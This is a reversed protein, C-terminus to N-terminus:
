EIYWIVKGEYYRGDGAGIAGSWKWTRTRLQLTNGSLVDDPIEVTLTSIQNTLATCNLEIWSSGNWYDTVNTCLGPTVPATQKYKITFDATVTGIPIMYNEYIYSTAGPDAPLAYTDWDEDVANSCPYCPDFDGECSYSDETDDELVNCLWTRVLMELDNYDVIEDGNIDGELGPGTKLWDNALIAYDRFDIFGDNNLDAGKCDLILVWINGDRAFAIRNGDPSWTPSLYAMLPWFDMDVLHGDFTLRERSSGDTDIIYLDPTYFEEPSASPKRVSFAIKNDNPSWAPERSILGNFTLRHHDNGDPNMVYIELGGGHENSSFPIKTGDSSWSPDFGSSLATQSSGDVNTIYITGDWYPDHYLIKDENYRWAPAREDNTDMYTLRVQDNGDANMVYIDSTGYRDSSFVINNGDPSWDPELDDCENNTIRRQNSGDVYMVYIERNGDRDTVFAIENGDPSWAPQGEYSSEYTLQTLTYAKAIRTGAGALVVAAVLAVSTGRNM